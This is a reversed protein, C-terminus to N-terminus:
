YSNQFVLVFDSHYLIGPFLLGRPMPNEILVTM